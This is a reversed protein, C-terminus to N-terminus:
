KSFVWAVRFDGYHITQSPNSVQFDFFMLCVRYPHDLTNARFSIKTRLIILLGLVVPNCFFPAITM